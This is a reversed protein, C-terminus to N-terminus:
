LKQHTKRYETPTLGTAKKFANNFSSKTNFGSQYALRIITEHNNASDSLLAKITEIRYQNLLENLSIKLGINCVQSLQYGPIGMKQAVNESRLNPDLYLQEQELLSKLDSGLSAINDESLNSNQYKKQDDVQSKEGDWIARNSQELYESLSLFCMRGAEFLNAFIILPVYYMVTFPLIFLEHTYTIMSFLLGIILYADRSSKWVLNFVYASYVTNLFATVSLLLMGLFQEKGLQSVFSDLFYSGTSYAKNPDLFLYVGFVRHALLIGVAVVALIKMSKIYIAAYRDSIAIFFHLSELYLCSALPIAIIGLEAILFTAGFNFQRSQVVFQDLAVISSLFCFSAINKSRKDASKRYVYVQSFGLIVLFLFVSLAIGPFVTVIFEM